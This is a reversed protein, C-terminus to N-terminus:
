MSGLYSAIRTREEASLAKMMASMTPQNTRADRAFAAMQDSLYAAFQGALRPAMGEPSQGGEFNAGHCAKCAAASPPEALATGERAPWPRNALIEAAHALEKFPVAEAMSSMIQNDRDGSRYDKLQKELYKAQQGFIIPITSDSPKGASGHCSSCIQLSTELPDAALAPSLAVCALFGALIWNKM